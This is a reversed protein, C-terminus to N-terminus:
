TVNVWLHLYRYPSSFNYEKFLLFRLKMGTGKNDVLFSINREVTENHDLIFDESVLMNKDVNKDADKDINIQLTYNIQSYEHNVIGVTINSIVGSKIDTPYNDAKGDQGLIYFETFKEGMKPITVVYILMGIAIIISLSLIFTLIIDKRNQVKTWPKIEDYIKYLSLDFRICEPLQRRRYDAVFALIISYSCLMILIPILRIGFTYNLILGLFPVVTVSLCISLTIIEMDDLDDKKPFLAAVLLYGPIFLVLPLGLITRVISDNIVPVMVFIFAFITWVLVIFLDSSIKKYTKIM